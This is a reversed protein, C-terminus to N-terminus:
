REKGRDMQKSPRESGAVKARMAELKAKLSVRETPINTIERTPLINDLVKKTGNSVEPEDNMTLETNEKEDMNLLANLEALRDLKESLELEQAFPKTVEVRAIKLQHEVNSLKQGVDAM